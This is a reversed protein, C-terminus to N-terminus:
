PDGNIYAPPQPPAFWLQGNHPTYPPIVLQGPAPSLPLPLAYLPSQTPEPYLMPMPSHLLPAPAPAPSPSLVPDM